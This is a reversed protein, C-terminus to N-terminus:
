GTVLEAMMELLAPPGQVLLTTVVSEEWQALEDRIKAPSGILSMAEVMATPVAAIADPKNGELYHQQIIECEAEFGMRVFVDKHFNRDKSGMGGIYLALMPRIMDAAAEVDPNPVVPVIAPVEFDAWTGRAGPRDFGEQLARRYFADDGPSFFLPLWGDAIEGSLAVNKPGEAALFIPIDPRYPHLTSKLTKGLGTGGDLPLQFFAGDFEV